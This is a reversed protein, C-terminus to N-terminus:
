RIIQPITMNTRQQFTTDQSLKHQVIQISHDAPVLFAKVDFSTIIEEPEM